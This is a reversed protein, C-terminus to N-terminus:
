GPDGPGRSAPVVPAPRLGLTPLLANLYEQSERLQAEEWQVLEGVPSHGLEWPTRWEEGAPRAYTNVFKLTRALQAASRPAYEPWFDQELIRVHRAEIAGIELSASVSRGSEIFLSIIERFPVVGQGVPCRVLRYGSESPHIKYDKFHLYRIWPLVRRAYDLPEEGTGLPNATDLVIGFHDSGISECLWLLDESAVDQHDEVALTVGRPEGYRVVEALQRRVVEMFPKWRGGAFERRDGGFKAGGVVTRVVTAGAAVAGDVAQRLVEPATGFASCVIEMRKARAEQGVAKWAETDGPAVLETPIEAGDFGRRVAEQLMGLATVRSAGSPLWGFTHPSGYVNFNLRV